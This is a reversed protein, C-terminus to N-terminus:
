TAGFNGNGAQDQFSGALFQVDVPGEAFEGTFTYRYTTGSVLTPEGSVVVNTAAAGSLAFEAGSDLISTPDIGSGTDSFTVDLYGRSNITDVQISTNAAPDALSATPATTDIVPVFRVADAIVVGNTGTTRIRVNGATGADFSFSGLLNWAGGNVQQNVSV